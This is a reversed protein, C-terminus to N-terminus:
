SCEIPRQYRHCVDMAGEMLLQNGDGLLERYLGEWELGVVIEGMRLM